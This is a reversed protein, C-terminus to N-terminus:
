LLLGPDAGMDLGPFVTRELVGSDLGYLGRMAWAAYSRVDATPMLDRQEFLSADDLGPWRGYIRGGRVAGGAMLM